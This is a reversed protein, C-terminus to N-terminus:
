SQITPKEDWFTSEMENRVFRYLEKGSGLKSKTAREGRHKGRLTVHKGVIIVPPVRYKHPVHRYPHKPPPRHRFERVYKLMTQRRIGIKEQQLKHQIQNATYGKRSLQRIRDVTRTKVM